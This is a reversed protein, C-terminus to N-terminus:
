RKLKIEYKSKGYTNHIDKTRIYKSTEGDMLEMDVAIDYKGSIPNYQNVAFKTFTYPLYIKFKDLTGDVEEPITLEYTIESNYNKLTLESMQTIDINNAYIPYVSVISVNSSKTGGSKRMDECLGGHSDKPIGGEGFVGTATIVYTGEVSEEGWKDPSMSVSINCEGFYDTGDNWKGKSYSTIINSKEPLVSGVKIVKDGSYSISVSADTSMKPLTLPCLINMMIESMSKSKLQGITTSELGGVQVTMISDDMDGATFKDTVRSNGIYLDDVHGDSVHIFSNPYDRQASELHETTTKIFKINEAM